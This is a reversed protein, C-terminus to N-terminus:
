LLGKGITKSSYICNCSLQAGKEPSSVSSLTVQAMSGCLLHLFLPSRAGLRVTDEESVVLQLKHSNKHRKSYESCVLACPWM